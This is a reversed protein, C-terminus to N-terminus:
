TTVGKVAEVDFDAPKGSGTWGSLTFHPRVVVTGPFETIGKPVVWKFFNNDIITINETIETVIENPKEVFFSISTAGVVSVGMDVLVVFGEDGQYIKERTTTNSM